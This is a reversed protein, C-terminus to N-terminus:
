DAVKLVRRKVVRTKELVAVYTYEEMFQSMPDVIQHSLGLVRTEVTSCRRIIETLGWALHELPPAPSLRLEFSHAAVVRSQRWFVVLMPFSVPLCCVCIRRTLNRGLQNFCQYSALINIGGNSVHARQPPTHEIHINMVWWVSRSKLLHIDCVLEVPQLPLDNPKILRPVFCPTM